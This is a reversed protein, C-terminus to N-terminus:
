WVWVRVEDGGDVVHVLETRSAQAVADVLRATAFGDGDWSDLAERALSFPVNVRVREDGQAEVELRDGVKRVVVREDREEVRVLDFDPAAELEGLVRRAAGLYPAAEPCRVHRAEEPAFALAARALALPAPVVLHQGDPGGERVDVVVWDAGGLSMAGVPVAFLMAALKLSVM